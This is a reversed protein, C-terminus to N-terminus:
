AAQDAADTIRTLIRVVFTHVIHRKYDASGRHDSRPRAAEAAKDAASGISTASLPGGVLAQGAAEALITSGGVGTLAIGARTVLEGSREIAVAVGATAFDGVRRELKLYGGAPIGKPAPVIAEVAIEDYALTNQFPGSVFATLPISRRGNPGEAVVEGGLATMVSAWDGQPDAHCLSGVLTGRNRVIPDAILPAAEAMTPQREALLSSRELEAHRCLAGIRITGDADRRHYALDPLNNIDVLLEPAAFRLKMMPVLSQGGALVKVYDGDGLLAIAEDLSHPAEYRFRSPFM